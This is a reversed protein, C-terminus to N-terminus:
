EMASSTDYITTMAHVIVAHLMKPDTSESLITCMTLRAADDHAFVTNLYKANCGEHSYRFSVCSLM